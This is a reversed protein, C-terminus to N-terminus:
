GIRAGKGLAVPIIHDITLDGTAACLWAAIHIVTASMM